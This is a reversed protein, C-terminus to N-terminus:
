PPLVHPAFGSVVDDPFASLSLSLSLVPGPAGHDGELDCELSRLVDRQAGGRLYELV